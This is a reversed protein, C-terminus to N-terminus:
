KYNKIQSKIGKMMEDIQKKLNAASGNNDLRWSAQKALKRIKTETPLQADRLFQAWTKTQDDPNQTRRILRRYRIEPETDVHILWFGPLTKLQTIDQPLRINPLCVIPATAKEVQNTIAKALIDQGFRRRLDNGLWAMNKRTQPLNIVTLIDRLPQSFSITRSHYKKELYAAVTDKGSAIEGVLGLIIKPTVPRKNTTM